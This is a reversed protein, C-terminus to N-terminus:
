AAVELLTITSVASSAQVFASAGNGGSSLQTKYAVPSITAPSDLYCCSCGGVSNNATGGTYGAQGEFKILDTSGRLLKLAVWTNGTDKGCGEQSVLVLIKSSASTPTITATLGTDAYTSSSNSVQTSYTANVVQLINGARELRDLTGNAAPVTLLSTGSVAPVDLQCYGSTAGNLRLPSM